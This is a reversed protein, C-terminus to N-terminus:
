TDLEADVQKEANKPNLSNKGEREGVRVRGHRRGRKRLLCRRDM